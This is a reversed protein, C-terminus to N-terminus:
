LLTTMDRVELHSYDVFGYSANMGPFESTLRSYVKPPVSQDAQSYIAFTNIGERVTANNLDLVFRSINVPFPQADSDGPWM